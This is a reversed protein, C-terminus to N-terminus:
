LADLMAQASQGVSNTADLRVATELADRAAQVDGLQRNVFGLTLWSRQYDPHRAVNQQLLSLAEASRGTYQWTLALNNQLDANDPDLALLKEYYTAAQAYNKAAFQEDALRSLEMPDTPTPGTGSTLSDVVQPSIRAAWDDAPAVNGPLAHPAAAPVSIEPRYIERTVGFVLAGFGVQFVLLALWFQRNLQM